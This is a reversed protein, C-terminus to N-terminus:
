AEAPRGNKTSKEEKSQPQQGARAAPRRGPAPCPTLPTGGAGQDSTVSGACQPFLATKGQAQARVDAGAATLTNGKEFSVSEGQVGYEGKQPLAFATEKMPSDGARRTDRPADARVKGAKGPSTRAQQLAGDARRADPIAKAGAGDSCRHHPPSHAGQRAAAFFTRALPAPSPKDSPPRPPLHPRPQAPSHTLPYDAHTTRPTSSFGPPLPRAQRILSSPCLTMRPSPTGRSGSTSIVGALTKGVDAPTKNNKHPLTRSLGSGKTNKSRKLKSFPQFALRRCPVPHAKSSPIQIHSKDRKKRLAGGATRRTSSIPM